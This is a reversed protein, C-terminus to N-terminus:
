IREESEANKFEITEAKAGRIVEVTHPTPVPVRVRAKLVPVGPKKAAVVPEPKVEDTPNRLVLHVPGEHTHLALKEAEKPLLELTVTKVIKPKGEETFTEQAIALVQIRKLLTKVKMKKVGHDDVESVTIVDVFTNPLVFGGVGVVEDVRIAMARKGPEITAVLGAGSGPAALEASLIPQGARLRTVAIRGELTDVRDFAGRPVTAAPWNVVTLADGTLRGGVELDRAAIVVQATPLEEKLVVPEQGVKSSMWHNALFVAAVGSLLALGLAMVVGYRKM